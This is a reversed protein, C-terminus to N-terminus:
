TCDRGLLSMFHVPHLLLEETDTEVLLRAVLSPFDRNRRRFPLRGGAQLRPALDYSGMWVDCRALELAGLICCIQRLDMSTFTGVFVALRSIEVLPREDSM